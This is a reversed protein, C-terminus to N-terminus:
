WDECIVCQLMTRDDTDDDDDYTDHCVCFRGYFNQNSDKYNNRPNIPDKGERELSCKQLKFKANGCDCKFSRRSFLEVIPHHNGHCAISCAYCIGTEEAGMSVCEMCVFVMQKIYGLLFNNARSDQCIHMHTCTYLCPWMRLTLISICAHM